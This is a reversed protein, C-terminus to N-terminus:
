RTEGASPLSKLYAFIKDNAFEYVEAKLASGGDWPVILPLNADASDQFTLMTEIKELRFCVMRLAIFLAQFSDVGCSVEDVHEDLGLIQIKASWM